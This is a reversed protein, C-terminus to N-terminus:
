LRHRTEIYQKAQDVCGHFLAVEDPQLEDGHLECIRLAVELEDLNRESLRPTGSVAVQVNKVGPDSFLVGFDIRQDRTALAGPLQVVFGPLARLPNRNRRPIPRRREKSARWIRPAPWCLSADSSLRPFLRKM